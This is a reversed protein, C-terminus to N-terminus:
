SVLISNGLQDVQYESKDYVENDYEDDYEEDVEDIM